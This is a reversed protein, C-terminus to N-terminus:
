QILKGSHIAERAVSNGSMRPITNPTSNSSAGTSSMSSANTHITTNMLKEFTDSEAQIRLPPATRLTSMATDTPPRPMQYATFKPKAFSMAGSVNRGASSEFLRVYKDMMRNLKMPKSTMVVYTPEISFGFLCIGRAMMAPPMAMAASYRNLENPMPAAMGAMSM